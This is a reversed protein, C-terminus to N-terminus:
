IIADDKGALQRLLELQGTHYTEHWHLFAVAQGRSREREGSEVPEALSAPSVLELAAAIREQSHDLDALLRKLSLAQEEGTVPESGSRYRAAEAEDWIQPEGLITLVQNRGVLIHGLVWNLCNGRFPPQVLSDAHTLGETQMHIVRRTLDFSQILTEADPHKM